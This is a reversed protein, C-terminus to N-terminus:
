EISHAGANGVNFKSTEISFTRNSYRTRPAHQEGIVRFKDPWVTQFIIMCSWARECLIVGTQGVRLGQTSWWSTELFKSSRPM